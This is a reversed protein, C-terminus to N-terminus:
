ASGTDPWSLRRGLSAQNTSLFHRPRKISAMKEGNTTHRYSNKRAKKVEKHPVLPM